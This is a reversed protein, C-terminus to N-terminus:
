GVTNAARSVYPAVKRQLEATSVSLDGDNIVEVIPWGTGQLYQSVISIVQEMNTMFRAIDQATLNRLREQLGRFQIRALCTAPAAKVLIVLDSRPLLRLYEAIQEPRVQEAESVFMQVARHVFGEDFVVVEDARAQSSLFHYESAMRFFLRLISWRFRWPIPRRLQLGIVYHVLRPQQRAFQVMHLWYPLFFFSWWLLPGRWAQPALACVARGLHMKATYHRIGETVSMAVMEDDRLLQTLIPLLTSKGAGSNGLFEAIV